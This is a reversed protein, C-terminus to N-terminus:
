MKVFIINDVRKPWIAIKFAVCSIITAIDKLGRVYLLFSAPGTHRDHTYTFPEHVIVVNYREAQLNLVQKQSTNIDKMNCLVIVTVHQIHEFVHYNITHAPEFNFIRYLFM